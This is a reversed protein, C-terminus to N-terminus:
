LNLVAFELLLYFAVALRGLLHLGDGCFHRVGLVVDVHLVFVATFFHFERFIFVKNSCRTCSM